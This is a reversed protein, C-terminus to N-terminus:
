GRWRRARRRCRRPSGPQRDMTARARGNRAWPAPAQRASRYTTLTLGGAGTAQEALPRRRLIVTSSGGALLLHWRESLRLAVMMAVAVSGLRVVRRSKCVFSSISPLHRSLALPLVNAVILGAVS